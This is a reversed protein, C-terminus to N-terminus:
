YATINPQLVPNEKKISSASVLHKPIKHVDFQGTSDDFTALEYLQFDEPHKFIQGGREPDNVLDSFARVAAAATVQYWPQAYVESKVDRISVTVMKM